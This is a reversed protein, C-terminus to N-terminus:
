RKLSLVSVRSSGCCRSCGSAPGPSLRSKFGPVPAVGRVRCQGPFSHDSDGTPLALSLRRWQCFLLGRGM